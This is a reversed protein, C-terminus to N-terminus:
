AVIRAAADAAHTFKWNMCIDGAAYIKPNTTQLYDNVKVGQRQDYKVGVAELNLGEVNPSRRACVLIEDVTVSDRHGNSSFYLRKGQTVTVVEELKSNLVVRIGESILVKQLIEAAEVDEKNLLHSGSYFLVM